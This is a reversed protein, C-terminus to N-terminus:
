EARDRVRVIRPLHLEPHLHYPSARFRLIQPNSFRLIQRRVLEGVIKLDEFRPIEQWGRATLESVELRFIALAREVRHWDDYFVHRTEGEREQTVEWGSHGLSSISYRRTKEAKRLTISFMLTDAAM